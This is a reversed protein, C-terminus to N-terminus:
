RLSVLPSAQYAAEARRVFETLVDMDPAGTPSRLTVSLLVPGHAWILWVSDFLPNTLRYAITVEGFMVPAPITMVQTDPGVVPDLADAQAAQADADLVVDFTLVPGAFGQPTVYTATVQMVRKWAVAFRELAADAGAFGSGSSLAARVVAEAPHVIAASQLEYGVPFIDEGIDLTDLLFVADLREAETAPAAVTADGPEFPPLMGLAADIAGALRLATERHEPGVAALTAFSVALPGRQWRLEYEELDQLGIRSLPLVRRWITRGAPLAAPQDLTVPEFGDPTEVSGDVFARVTTESSLLTLQIMADPVTMRDEPVLSQGIRVIFGQDLLATLVVRPDEL